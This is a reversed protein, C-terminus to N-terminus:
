HYGLFHKKQKEELNSANNSNEIQQKRWGKVEQNLTVWFFGYGVFLGLAFKALQTNFNLCHFLCYGALLILLMRSGYVYHEMRDVAHLNFAENRLFSIESEHQECIKCKSDYPVLSM